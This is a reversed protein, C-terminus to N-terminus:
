NCSSYSDDFRSVVLSLVLRRNLVSLGDGGGDTDGSQPIRKELSGYLFGWDTARWVSSEFETLDYTSIRM